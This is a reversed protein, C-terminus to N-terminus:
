LAFNSRKLFRSGQVQAYFAMRPVAINRVSWHLLEGVREKLLLHTSLNVYQKREKYSINRTLMQTARSLQSAVTPAIAFMAINWITIDFNLSNTNSEDALCTQLNVYTTNVNAIM